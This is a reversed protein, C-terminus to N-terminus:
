RMFDGSLSHVIIIKLEFERSNRFEMMQCVPLTPLKSEVLPDSIEVRHCDDPIQSLRSFLCALQSIHRKM